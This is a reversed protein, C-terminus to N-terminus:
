KKELFSMIHLYKKFLNYKFSLKNLRLALNVNDIANLNNGRIAHIRSLHFYEMSIRNNRKRKLYNIPYRRTKELEDFYTNLLKITAEAHNNLKSTVGTDFFSYYSLYKKLFKINKIIKALRLVLDYDEEGNKLKEDYLGARVLIDKKVTLTSTSILNGRFLLDEFFPSKMKKINTLRKKYKYKDTKLLSKHWILEYPFKKLEKDLCELKEEMWEDDHDLFSIYEGNSIEIGKNRTKSIGQNNKYGYYNINISPNNEIFDLIVKHSNDESGDNVVSIEYNKFIQNKISNLAVLVKDGGNYVPVVISFLVNSKDM